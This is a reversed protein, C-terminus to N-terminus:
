HANTLFCSSGLTSAFTTVGSPHRVPSCIAATTANLSRASFFAGIRGDLCAVRQNGEPTTHLRFIRSGPPM